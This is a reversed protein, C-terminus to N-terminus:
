AHHDAMLELEHWVHKPLGDVADQLRDDPSAGPRALLRSVMPHQEFAPGFSLLCRAFLLITDAEVLGRARARSLAWAVRDHLAQPPLEAWDDAFEEVLQESAEPLFEDWLHQSFAAMQAPRITLM